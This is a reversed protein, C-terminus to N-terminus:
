LNKFRLRYTFLFFYGIMLLYGIPLIYAMIKISTVFDKEQYGMYIALLNTAILFINFILGIHNKKLVEELHSIPNYVARLFFLFSLIKMYTGVVVWEKGLILQLAAESLFFILLFPIVSLLSLRITNKKLFSFVQRKEKTYIESARLFFVKSFSSNIFTGPVSLLVVALFYWGIESDIFYVGGLVPIIHLNIANLNDSLVGYSVLNMNEKLTTRFKSISILSFLNGVSNIYFLLLIIIAILFGLILGKEPILFFFGIQFTYRIITFLVRSSAIPKFKKLRLLYSLYTNELSKLIAGVVCFVVYIKLLNVKVFFSDPLLIIILFSFLGGTFVTYIISSFVDKLNKEEDSLVFASELRLTFFIAIIASFSMFKSFIGLSDAGYLKAILFTGGFGILQAWINGKLLSIVGKAYTSSFNINSFM